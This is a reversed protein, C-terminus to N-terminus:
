LKRAAWIKDKAAGIEKFKKEAAARVDDGLTAVKDPHYKLALRRYARRVEDDTADPSVGLVAYASELTDTGLNLLQDVEEAQLRLNVALQHLVDVEVDAVNGDARAIECLFALLQRREAVGLIQCLQRCCAIIEQQWQERTMTKRRQFLRNLIDNAQTVAAEGYNRRINGRVYELESHMIRDDAAVVHASLLLLSFLFSDRRTQQSAGSHTQPGAKIAPSPTAKAAEVRIVAQSVPNTIRSLVM